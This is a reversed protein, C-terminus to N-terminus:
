GTLGHLDSFDAQVRSTVAVEMRIFQTRNNLVRKKWKDKGNQVGTKGLTM